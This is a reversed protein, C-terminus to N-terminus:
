AANRTQRLQKVARRYLAHLVLRRPHGLPFLRRATEYRAKARRYVALPTM